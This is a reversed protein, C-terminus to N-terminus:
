NVVATVEALGDEFDKLINKFQGLSYFSIEHLMNEPEMGEPIRWRWRYGSEYKVLTKLRKNDGSLLLGIDIQVAVDNMSISVAVQDNQFLRPIFSSRYPSHKKFLFYFQLAFVWVPYAAELDEVQFPPVQRKKKRENYIVAWLDTPNPIYNHIALQSIFIELAYTPLKEHTVDKIDSSVLNLLEVGEMFQDYDLDCIALWDEKKGINRLYNFLEVQNKNDQLVQQVLHKWTHLQDQVIFYNELVERVELDAANQLFLTRFEEISEEIAGMELKLFARKKRWPYNEPDRTLIINIKEIAERFQENCSLYDAELELLDEEDLDVLFPVSSKLIQYVEEPPRKGNQNSLQLYRKLFQKNGADNLLADRMKNFAAVNKGLHLYAEAELEAFQFPKGLRKQYERILALAEEVRSYDVMLAILRSLVHIDRKSDRLAKEYDHMAKKSEDMEEFIKGRLFYPFSLKPHHKILQNTMNLAKEPMDLKLYLNTLRTLLFPHNPLKELALQLTKEAKRYLQLDQFEKSLALYNKAVEMEPVQKIIAEMCVIGTTLEEKYHGRIRLYGSAAPVLKNFVEM